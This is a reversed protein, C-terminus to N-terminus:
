SFDGTCDAKWLSSVSVSIRRAVEFATNECLRSGDAVDASGRNTLEIFDKNYPAGSNGGGGYVESIVVGSATDVALAPEAAALGGTALALAALGGLAIRGLVSVAM